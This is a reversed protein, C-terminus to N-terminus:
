HASRHLHSSQQMTAEGNGPQCEPALLRPSFIQSQAASPLGVNCICSYQASTSSSDAKSRDLQLERFRSVHFVSICAVRPWAWRGAGVWWWGSSYPGARLGSATRNGCDRGQADVRTRTLTSHQEEFLSNHTSGMFSMSISVRTCSRVHCLVTTKASVVDHIFM